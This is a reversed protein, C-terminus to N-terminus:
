PNGALAATIGLSTFSRDGGPLNSLFRSRVGSLTVSAGRGLDVQLSGGFSTVDDKRDPAGSTGAANATYGDTGREAYLSGHGRHGFRFHLSAGFREEDLYPYLPFISYILNRHGYVFLEPGAATRYALSAQGTVKHYRVFDSGHTAELSRAALDLNWFVRNHDYAAEFVPATGANSRDPEGPHDQSNFDARSREVGLGFVLGTFPRWHAGLRGIQERRDLLSLLSAQPDNRDALSKQRLAQATAFLSFRPTVQLELNLNAHDERSNALLPLEPTLIRQTEDRGATAELTVRNGFAHFGGGLRQNFRRRDALKQWWVYEPLAYATWTTKAGTPLYLRLGGGLTATFDSPAPQGTALLTKVYAVDRFGISPAIRLAGLHYRAGAVEKALKGRADEPRGAPGGPTTYQDFQAWASSWASLGLFLTLGARQYLRM